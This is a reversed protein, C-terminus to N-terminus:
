AFFFFFSARWYEKCHCIFYSCFRGGSWERRFFSLLSPFAFLVIMIRMGSRVSVLTSKTNVWERGWLREDKVVDFVM